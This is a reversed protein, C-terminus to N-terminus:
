ADAEASGVDWSGPRRATGALMMYSVPKTFGDLTLNKWSVVWDFRRITGRTYNHNPSSTDLLPANAPRTATLTNLNGSDMCMSSM